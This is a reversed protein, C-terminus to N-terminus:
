RVRLRQPAAPPTTDTSDRRSYVRIYDIELQAPFVTSSDPDGPWAGGVALDALIYMGPFGYGAIPVHETVRYRQVGDIYWAIQTSDWLVGYTHFDASYDPGSYSGGSSLNSGGTGPYNSSYHNTMYIVNTNHGLNEMVDIEPPWLWRNDSSKPMLWFAPWLGKGHPIKMRIEFYGYMQNFTNHSSIVGSSYPFGSRSQVNNAVLKLTGNSVKHYDAGDVFWSKADAMDRGGDSRVTAWKSSDLSQGDFEDSFTLTWDSSNGPPAAWSGPVMLIAILVVIILLSYKKM